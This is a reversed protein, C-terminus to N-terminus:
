PRQASFTASTHQIVAAPAVTSAVSTQSRKLGFQPYLGLALILVVIPVIPLAEALGIERSTVTPRVRNQMSSIFLRLAYVAAGVVGLTAIVAIALKIKFVGLLIMFEGVFNASGPMALTALTVILFITALVPARFAIGGM